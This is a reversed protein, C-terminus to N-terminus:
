MEQMALGVRLRTLMWPVHIGHRGGISKRTLEQCRPARACTLIIAHPHMSGRVKRRSFQALPTTSRAPARNSISTTNNYARVCTMWRGQNDTRQRPPLRLIKSSWHAQLTCRFLLKACAPRLDAAPVKAGLCKSKNGQREMRPLTGAARIPSANIRSRTPNSRIFWAFM